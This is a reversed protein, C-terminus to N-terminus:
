EMTLLHLTQFRFFLCKVPRLNNYIYNYRTDMSVNHAFDLKEIFRAKDDYCYIHLDLDCITGPTSSWEVTLRVNPIVKDSFAEGSFSFSQGPQLQFIEKENSSNSWSM